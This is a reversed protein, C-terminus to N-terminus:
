EGRVGRVGRKGGRRERDRKGIRWEGEGVSGGRGRISGGKRGISVGM